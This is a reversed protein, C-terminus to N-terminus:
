LSITPLRRIPQIHRPPTINVQKGDQYLLIFTITPLILGGILQGWMQATINDTGMSLYGIWNVAPAIWILAMAWVYLLSFNGKRPATYKHDYYVLVASAAAPLFQCITLLHLSLGIYATVDTMSAFTSIISGICYFILLGFAWKAKTSFPRM